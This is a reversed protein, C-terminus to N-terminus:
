ENITTFDIKTLTEGAERKRTLSPTLCTDFNRLSKNCGISIKEQFVHSLIMKFFKKISLPARRRLLRQWPSYSQGSGHVRSLIFRKGM